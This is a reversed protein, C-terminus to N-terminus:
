ISKRFPLYTVDVLSKRSVGERVSLGIVVQRIAVKFVIPGLLGVTIM